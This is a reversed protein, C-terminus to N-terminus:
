SLHDESVSGPAYGYVPPYKNIIVKISALRFPPTTAQSLMWRNKLGDRSTWSLLMMISINVADKHLRVLWEAVGVGGRGGEVVGGPNKMEEKAGTRCGM